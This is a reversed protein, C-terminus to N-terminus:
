AALPNPEDDFGELYIIATTRIQWNECTPHSQLLRVAPEPRGTSLV